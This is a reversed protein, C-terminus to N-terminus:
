ALRTFILPKNDSLQILGSDTSSHLKISQM